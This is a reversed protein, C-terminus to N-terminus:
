ESLTKRFMKRRSAGVINMLPINEHSDIAKYTSCAESFSRKYIYWIYYLKYQIHIYTNYMSIYLLYM